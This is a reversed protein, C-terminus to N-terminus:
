TLGLDKRARAWPILPKEGQREIALNLERLDELDQVRQDLAALEAHLERLTLKPRPARRDPKATVENM